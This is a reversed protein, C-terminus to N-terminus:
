AQMNKRILKKLHEPPRVVKGNQDMFAHRTYGKALIRQDSENLILYDFKMAAKASVDLVTDIILMDDYKASAVFKCHVESVPMFIGDEELKKYSLGWSRILETRGIEFWRLYNAYYAVGMKDTDGYIVRYSTRSNIANPQKQM